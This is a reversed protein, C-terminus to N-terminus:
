QGTYKTKYGSNEGPRLQNPYEMDTKVDFSVKKFFTFAEYPAVINNFSYSGTNQINTDDVSFSATAINITGTNKNCLKDWIGVNVDASTVDDFDIYKFNRGIVGSQIIIRKDTIVYFTHKASFWFRIPAVIILYFASYIFILLLISLCAFILVDDFKLNGRSRYLWLSCPYLVVSLGFGPVFSNFTNSVFYPWFIPSSQWLIKENTNLVKQIENM